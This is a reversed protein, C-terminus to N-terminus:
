CTLALVVTERSQEHGIVSFPLLEIESGNRHSVPLKTKQSGLFMALVHRFVASSESVKGVM